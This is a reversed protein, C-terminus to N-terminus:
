AGGQTALAARLARSLEDGLLPKEILVARAAAAQARLRPTPNTALVIAPTACDSARFLALAALGDALKGEDIVLVAAAAPDNGDAAGDLVEFGELALAFQLSSLVPRDSVFLMIPAQM